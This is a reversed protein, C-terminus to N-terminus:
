KINYVYYRYFLSYKFVEKKVETLRPSVYIIANKRDHDNNMRKGALEIKFIQKLNFYIIILYNDFLCSFQHFVMVMRLLFLLAYNM